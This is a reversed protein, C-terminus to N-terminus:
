FPINDADAASVIFRAVVKKVGAKDFNIELKDGEVGIVDGYGFKTHFVRDGQMFSSM